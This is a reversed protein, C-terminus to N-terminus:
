VRGQGLLRQWANYVYAFEPDLKIARDFTKIAEDYDKQVLAVGEKFLKQAKEKDDAVAVDGLALTAM